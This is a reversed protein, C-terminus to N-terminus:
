MSITALSLCMNGDLVFTQFINPQQIFEPREDEALLKCQPSKMLCECYSLLGRQISLGSGSMTRSAPSNEYSCVHGEPFHGRRAPRRLSPASFWPAQAGGSGELLLGQARHLYFYYLPLSFSFQLTCLQEQKLM